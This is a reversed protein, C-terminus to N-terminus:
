IQRLDTCHSSKQQRETKIRDRMQYNGNDLSNCFPGCDFFVCMPINGLVLKPLLRIIGDLLCEGQVPPLMKGFWMRSCLPVAVDQSSVPLQANPPLQTEM